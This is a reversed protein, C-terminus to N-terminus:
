VYSDKSNSSLPPNDSPKINVICPTTDNIDFLPQTRYIKNIDFVLQFKHLVAHLM